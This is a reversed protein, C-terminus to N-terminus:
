YNGKYEVFEFSQGGPTTVTVLIRKFLKKSSVDTEDYNDDYGVTVNFTFNIYLTDYNGSGSLQAASQNYGHYDDVDDYDNVSESDSGLDDSDTCSGAGAEGCRTGTNLDTNEDFAKGMIENLLSQGLEAARVQYVPDVSRSAQPFLVTTLATMAMAMIVIGAILEILTFGRALPTPSKLKAAM